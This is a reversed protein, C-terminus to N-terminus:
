KIFFVDFIPDATLNKYRKLESIDHLIEKGQLMEPIEICKSFREDLFAIFQDFTDYKEYTYPNFEIFVPFDAQSLIFDAGKLVQPEFGETDIWMYKVDEPKLEKEKFYEDLSVLNVLESGISQDGYERIVSNGGPNGALISIEKKYSKEALGANEIFINETLDNLRLNIDLYKFNEKTPEFALIKVNPDIIKKFYICTTGINAGLDLFM